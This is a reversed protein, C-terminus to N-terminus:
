RLGSGLLFLLLRLGLGLLVEDLDLVVDLVLVLAGRAARAAAPATATPVAVAVAVGLRDDLADDLQEGVARTEQAEGRGLGGVVVDVDRRRLDAAALEDAAVLDGPRRAPRPPRLAVRREDTDLRDVAGRDLLDGLARREVLQGARPRGLADREVAALVRRQAGDLPERRETAARAHRDRAPRQRALGLRQPAD